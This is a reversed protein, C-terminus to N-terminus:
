TNEIVVLVSDKQVCDGMSVAIHKIVGDFPALIEHEMKMAELIAVMAGKQVCDGVSVCLKSVVGPMPSKILGSPDSSEFNPAVPTTPEPTSAPLKSPLAQNCVINQTKNGIKLTMNQIQNQGMEETHNAGCFIVEYNKGNVCVEFVEPIQTNSHNQSKSTTSQSTETLPEPTLNGANREQLFVKAVAPLIAYSIVDTPSKAFDKCAEKAALLEDTLLDASRGRFIEEGESLVKEQLMACIPAPTKGYLGKILNKSEKTLHEYRNKSLINLLAQTGIIQSTPTVLPPYGFDQRVSPIELLLADIQELADQEKLQQALNSIMGGPIQNLLVRTDIQNYSSEFRKYKSRKERLIGAAEEMLSLDLLTDYPTGQLAAVMSQTCPHSTGEAFASNSLDLIDVGAECAKLHAGFAFGATAHTHLSILVGVEAKLAKILEFAEMPRLLGAMDKIALSDCGMAVLEKAYAVFSAITHVPSTTYCIAGQVHKNQKKIAEISTKLNRADNLADFVRFIDIGAEASLAIFERVVDDAYHRYGVLNQGRLLMQLPTTKFVGKLAALREFPDEKLYRLCTDYTAGGWVEVSYFGVAEFLAAAELMDQTRLRTAILSQHGDRLSNETIKIM